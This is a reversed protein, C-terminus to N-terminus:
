PEDGPEITTNKLIEAAKLLGRAYAAHVEQEHKSRGSRSETLRALDLLDRAIDDLSTAVYRTKM